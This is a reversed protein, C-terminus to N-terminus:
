PPSGQMYFCTQTSDAGLRMRFDVDWGTLRNASGTWEAPAAGELLMVLTQEGITITGGRTTAVPDGGFGRVQWPDAPSRWFEERQVDGAWAPAPLLLAAALVTAVTLGLRGRMM